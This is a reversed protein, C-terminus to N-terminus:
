WLKNHYYKVDFYGKDTLQSDRRSAGAAPTGASPLGAAPQAAAQQVDLSGPREIVVPSYRMPGLARMEDRREEPPQDPDFEYAEADYEPESPDEWDDDDWMERPYYRIPQSDDAVAASAEPAEAEAAAPSESSHHLM